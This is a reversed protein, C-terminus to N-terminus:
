NQNRFSQTVENEHLKSQKCIIASILLILFRVWRSGQKVKLARKFCKINQDIKTKSVSFFQAVIRSKLFAKNM